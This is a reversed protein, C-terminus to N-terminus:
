DLLDQNIISYSRNPDFNYIILSVLYFTYIILWRIQTEFPCRAGSIWHECEEVALRSPLGM